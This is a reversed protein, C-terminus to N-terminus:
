STPLTMEFTEGGFGSIQDRGEITVTDVGAPIQVDSLSRTFPQESAHDHTLLRFGYETGDPGLIRWGDAYREPSDYPSSVTVNFTWAGNTFAATADIINPFLEDTETEGAAAAAVSDVTTAPESVAPDSVISESSTSESPAADDNTSLGCAALSLTAVVVCAATVRTQQRHIRLM